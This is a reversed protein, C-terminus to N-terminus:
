FCIKTSYLDEYSHEPADAPSTIEAVKYYHILLLKQLRIEPFAVKMFPTWVTTLGSKRIYQEAQLKAVFTLGFVNLFIYAPNLIQGMAAGSVLISSILVFKSEYGCMERFSFRSVKWPAFLDWGPRFGTACIVAESDDGIVQAIKESGETVDAKVIQLHPNDNLLTTRAKDLDRVGAKVAFGKALLQEVIRKGTSGTAGAVFIKKKVSVNEEITTSNLSLSRTKLTTTFLSLSSNPSPFPLLTSDLSNQNLKQSDSHSGYVVCKVLLKLMEGSGVPKELAILCQNFHRPGRRWVMSRDELRSFHFVFINDGVLEIEDQGITSWLQEIVGIFAERNVRRGTLVKGVLCHTVDNFGEQMDEGSIQCIVVDEDYLSLVQCLKAIEETDM